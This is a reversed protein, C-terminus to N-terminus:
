PKLGDRGVACGHGGDVLDVLVEGAEGFGFALEDGFENLEEFFAM